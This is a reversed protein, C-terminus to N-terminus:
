VSWDGMGDGGFRVGEEERVFVIDGDGFGEEFGLVGKRGSEQMRDAVAMPAPFVEELM